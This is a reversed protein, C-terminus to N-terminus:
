RCKGFSATSGVSNERPEAQLRGDDLSDSHPDNAPAAGRAQQPPLESDHRTAAGCPKGAANEGERDGAGASTDGDSASLTVQRLLVSRGGDGRKGGGAEQGPEAPGEVAEEEEEAQGSAVATPVDYGADEPRNKSRSRERTTATPRGGRRGDQEWERGNDDDSHGARHNADPNTVVGGSACRRWTRSSSKRAAKGKAYATPNPKRYGTADADDLM